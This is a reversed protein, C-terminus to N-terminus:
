GLENIRLSADSSRSRDITVISLPSMIFQSEEDSYINIGHFSGIKTFDERPPSADQITIGLWDGGIECCGVKVVHSSIYIGPHSLGRMKGVAEIFKLAAKTIEFSIKVM